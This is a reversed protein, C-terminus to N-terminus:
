TRASSPLRFWRTEGDVSPLCSLPSLSLHNLGKLWKLSTVKGRIKSEAEEVADKGEVGKDAGEVGEDDM